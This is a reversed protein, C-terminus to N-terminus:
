GDGVARRADAARADAGAGGDSKGTGLGGPEPPAAPYQHYVVRQPFPIEIRLEDFRKKIRRRAERAVKWQEGPKTQFTMRINVSSDGFSQVGPVEPPALLKPGWQPDGQMDAGVDRLAAMARDPDEKYAVGIELLARSWGQTMNGVKQVTGNPIYHVVGQWDRLITLRLTIREVQGETDGIRVVDGIKYQNELLMFFGAFYDRVLQQAGFAVALGAVGASAIIPTVDIRLEKLVYIGAVIGVVVTWAAQFVHVLTQARQERELAGEDADQKVRQIIRAGVAKKLRILFFAVIPIAILRLVSYFAARSLVERRRTRAAAAQGALREGERDLAAGRVAIAGLDDGLAAVDGDIGQRSLRAELERLWAELALVRMRAEFVREAADPLREPPLGGSVVRAEAQAADARLRTAEDRAVPLLKEILGREEGALAVLRETLGRRAALNEARRDLDLRGRYYARLLDTLEGARESQFFRLFAETRTDDDELRRLVEQDLRKKETDDTSAPDRDFRGELRAREGLADLKRGALALLASLLERKRTALRAEGEVARARDRAATRARKLAALDTELAAIRDRRLAEAIGEPLTDESSEKRGVRAKLELAAGHARQRRDLAETAVAAAAELRADLRGFADLLTARRQAQADLVHIRSAYLTQRGEIDRMVEATAGPAPGAAAGAGAGAGGGSGAGAGAGGEPGRGRTAGEREGAGEEEAPPEKGVARYLWDRVRRREEPHQQRARRVLPDELAALEAAAGEVVAEASSAEERAAALAREAKAAAEFNQRFAQLVKLTPLREVERTFRANEKAAEFAEALARIKEREAEEARQAEEAQREIQALRAAAAEAAAAAAAAGVDVRERAAALAPPATAAPLPEPALAGDRRLREIREALVHMQLLHDDLAASEKAAGAARASVERLAERLRELRVAREAQYAAIAEALRLGKEAARAREGAEELAMADPNPLALSRLAAEAEGARTWAEELAAAAREFGGALRERDGELGYLLAALAGPDRDAFDSEIKERKVADRHARAAAALRTEAEALVAKTGEVEPALAGLAERTRAADGALAKATESVRARAAAVRKASWPAPVEAWGFAGRAHRTEIEAAVAELDALATLAAGAVATATEIRRARDELAANEDRQTRALQRIVEVRATAHEKTARAEEARSAGPRAAPAEPTLTLTAALARKADLVVQNARLAERAAALSRECEAVAADGATARQILAANDLTAPDDPAARATGAAWPLVAALATLVALAAAFATGARTTTM